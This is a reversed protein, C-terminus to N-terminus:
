SGAQTAQAKMRKILDALVPLVRFEEVPKDLWAVGQLRGDLLRQGEDCYASVVLIPLNRTASQLRLERILSLGHGDPLRLDTVLADPPENALVVRAERVSHVTVPKYGARRLMLGMFQAYTEDDDLVLVRTAHESPEETPM